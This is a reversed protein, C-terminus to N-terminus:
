GIANLARACVDDGHERSGSPRHAQGAAQRAHATISSKPTWSCPFVLSMDASIRRGHCQGHARPQPRRATTSRRRRCPGDSLPARSPVRPTLSGPSRGHPRREHGSGPDSVGRCQMSRRIQCAAWVAAKWGCSRSACRESDALHTMAKPPSTVTASLSFCAGWPPWTGARRPALHRRAV